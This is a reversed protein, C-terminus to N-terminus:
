DSIVDDAFALLAGAMCFLLGYAIVQLLTDANLTLCAAYATTIWLVPIM